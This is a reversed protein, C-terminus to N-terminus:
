EALLDFDVTYAIVFKIEDNDLGGADASPGDANTSSLLFSFGGKSLSVNYDYYDGTVGNFADVFDGDHWGVHLGLQVGSALEYGYDASLYVAEGFGFDQGPAEDAETNALINASFEFPGYGISGYIEGFDFEANSDYNYYLYGVDWTFTDNGGSFGAYLDHEYNFVDGPAYSVNSVWTGAYFGSDGAWDIGGQVAANNETQTLGRWLYNNTVTANASLEDAFSPQFAAVGTLLMAVPLTTTKKM